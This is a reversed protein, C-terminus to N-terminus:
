LYFSSTRTGTLGPSVACLSYSQRVTTLLAPRSTAAGFDRRRLSQSEAGFRTPHFPLCALNVQGSSATERAKVHMTDYGPLKV